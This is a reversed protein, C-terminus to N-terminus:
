SLIILLALFRCSAPLFCDTVDLGIGRFYMKINDELRRNLGGQSRKGKELEVLNKYASDMGNQKVQFGIYVVSM